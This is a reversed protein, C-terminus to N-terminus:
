FGEVEKAEKGCPRVEYGGVFDSQFNSFSMGVIPCRKRPLKRFCMPIYPQYVANPESDSRVRGVLGPDQDVRM